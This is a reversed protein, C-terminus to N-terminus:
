PATHIPVTSRYVKEYRWLEFYWTLPTKLPTHEYLLVVPKYFADLAASLNPPPAASHRMAGFTYIAPGISLVYLFPLAILATKAGAGWSTDSRSM